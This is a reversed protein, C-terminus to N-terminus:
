KKIRILKRFIDVLLICTPIAWVILNPIRSEYNISRADFTGIGSFLIEFPMAFFMNIVPISYLLVLLTCISVYRSTNKNIFVRSTFFYWLGVIALITKLWYALGFDPIWAPAGPGSVEKATIVNISNLIFTVCALSESIIFNRNKFNTLM